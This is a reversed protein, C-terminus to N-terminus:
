EFTKMFENMNKSGMSSNCNQCIPKLNNIVTEGGNSEAIIHGCHFSMQTIYTCKCCMCKAKGVEEGINKNWVLRKLTASIQTKKKNDKTIELVEEKIVKKKSNKLEDDIMPIDGKSQKWIISIEKMQEKGTLNSNTEKFKKMQEKVFLQYSNLDKKDIVLPEEIAVAVPIEEKVAAVKKEKKPKVPTQIEPKLNSNQLLILNKVLENISEINSAM